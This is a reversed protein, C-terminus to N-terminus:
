GLANWAAETPRKRHEAPHAVTGAAVLILTSTVVALWACLLPRLLSEGYDSILFYLWSLSRNFPAEEYRDM